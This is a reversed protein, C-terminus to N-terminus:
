ARIIILIRVGAVLLSPDVFEGIDLPLATLQFPDM